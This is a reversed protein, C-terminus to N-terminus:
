PKGPTARAADVTAAPSPHIRWLGDRHTHLRLTRLSQGEPLTLDPAIDFLPYIVFNREMLRPHPVTLTDSHIRHDGYLLLDLDLTRPGWRELRQRGPHRAITQLACLLDTAPLDTAMALVANAYDAQAGPGVATSGYCPSRSEVSSHRLSDLADFARLLQQLPSHLNSGLGIYATIM